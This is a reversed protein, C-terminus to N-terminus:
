QEAEPPNFLLLWIHYHILLQEAISYYNAVIVGINIADPRLAVKNVYEIMYEPHLEPHGSCEDGYYPFHLHGQTIGSAKHQTLYWARILADYDKFTKIIDFAHDINNLSRPNCFSLGLRITFLGDTTIKTGTVDLTGAPSNRMVVPIQFAKYDWPFDCFIHKRVGVYRMSSVTKQWLSYFM